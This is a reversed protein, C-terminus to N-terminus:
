GTFDDAPLLVRGDQPREILLPVPNFAVVRQYREDQPAPAHSRLQTSPAVTDQLQEFVPTHEQRRLGMLRAHAAELESACPEQSGVLFHTAPARETQQGSAAM